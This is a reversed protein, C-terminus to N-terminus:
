LPHGQDRPRIQGPGHRVNRSDTTREANARSNTPGSDGLKASSHRPLDASGEHLHASIEAPTPKPNQTHYWADHNARACMSVMQEHAQNLESSGPMPAPTAAKPTTHLPDPTIQIAQANQECPQDSYATSGDKATCKYVAAYATPIQVLLLFLAGINLNPTLRWSRSQITRIQMDLGRGQKIAAKREVCWIM